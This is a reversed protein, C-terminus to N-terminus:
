IALSLSTLTLSKIAAFGSMVSGLLIAAPCSRLIGAAVPLGIYWSPTPVPPGPDPPDAVAAVGGAALLSAGAAAGLSKTM